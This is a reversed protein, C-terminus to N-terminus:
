SNSSKLSRIINEIEKTTTCHYKISPFSNQFIHNLSYFLNNQNNASTKTFCNSANINQSIMTHITTFHKNFANAIIQHNTTSRGNINLSHLGHNKRNKGLEKNLLKWSTKMVNNSNLIQRDYEMRKADKIVKSLIQCYDKFYKRLAPNNNNRLKMYLVRKHQCSTQIGSTIWSNQCLLKNVKIVPFSSYYHRLFTNLFSNFITNVDNGEFVSTWTEHNLKLLFDAITFQNINRKYFM